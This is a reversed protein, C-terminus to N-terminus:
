SATVQSAGHRSFEFTSQEFFAFTRQAREYMGDVRSASSSCSLDPSKVFTRKVHRIAPRVCHIPLELGSNRCPPRAAADFDGDSRSRGYAAKAM